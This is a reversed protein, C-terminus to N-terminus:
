SWAELSDGGGLIGKWEVKRERFEMMDWPGGLHCRQSAKGPRLEGDWWASDQKKEEVAVTCLLTDM